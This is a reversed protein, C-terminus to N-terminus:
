EVFDILPVNDPPQLFRVRRGFPQSISNRAVLHADYNSERCEFIFNLSEFYSSRDVIEKLIASYRCLNNTKMM